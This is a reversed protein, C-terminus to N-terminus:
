NTKNKRRRRRRRRDRKRKQQMTTPKNTLIPTPRPSPKSTPQTTISTGGCYTLVLSYKIEDMQLNHADVKVIVRDGNEIDELEVREANNHRDPGNRGNPFYSRGRWMVTLDLDNILTDGPEDVYVMTARFRCNGSPRHVDVVYDHSNGGEKIIVRDHVTLQLDNSEQLPLSHFLSVRGYNQIADYPRLDVLPSGAVGQLFQSGNMIIAKILSGSPYLSSGTGKKGLPYYGDVFYQRVQAAMGAVVPASMSTGSAYRLGNSPDDQFLYDEPRLGDRDCTGTSGLRGDASLLRHGPAVVDPKTRLGAPGRSSYSAVYEFGEEFISIDPGDSHSAGVSIINKATSPMALTSDGSTGKNGAAVIVLQDEHEFLWRDINYTLSNYGSSSYGWSMSHLYAGTSVAPLFLHENKWIRLSGDTKGIDMFSIKADLAIGDGFGHEDEISDGDTSRRGALTGAPFIPCNPVATINFIITLLLACSFIYSYPYALFLKGVHSGHGNYGDGADAGPHMSYQIIKRKSFDKPLDDLNQGPHYQLYYKLPRLFIM